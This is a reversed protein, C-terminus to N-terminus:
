QKQVTFNGDSDTVCPEGSSQMLCGRPLYTGQIQSGQVVGEYHFTIDAYVADFRIGNGSMSGNRLDVADSRFPPTVTGTLSSGKQRIVLAMASPVQGIGFNQTGIYRGSIGESQTESSCSVLSLFAVALAGLLGIM